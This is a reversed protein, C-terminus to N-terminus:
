LNCKVFSEIMFVISLHVTVLQQICFRFIGGAQPLEHEDLLLNAGARNNDARKTGLLEVQVNGVSVDSNIEQQKGDCTDNCTDNANYYEFTKKEKSDLELVLENINFRNSLGLTGTLQQIESQVGALKTFSHQSFSL